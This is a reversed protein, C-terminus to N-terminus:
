SFVGMFLYLPVRQMDYEGNSAPSAQDYVSIPNSVFRGRTDTSVCYYLGTESVSNSPLEDGTSTFWTVVRDPLDPIPCELTVQGGNALEQDLGESGFLSGM